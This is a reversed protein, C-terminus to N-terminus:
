KNNKFNLMLNNYDSKKIRTPPIIKSLYFLTITDDPQEYGFRFCKNRHDLYYGIKKSQKFNKIDESPILIYEM